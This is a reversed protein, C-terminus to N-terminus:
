EAKMETDRKGEKIGVWGDISVDKRVESGGHFLFFQLGLMSLLM